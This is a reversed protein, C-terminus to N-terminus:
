PFVITSEQNIDVTREGFTASSVSTAGFQLSTVYTERLIRVPIKANTNTSGSSDTAVASDTATVYRTVTSRSGTDTAVASDTATKVIAGVGVTVGATDTATFTDVPVPATQEGGVTTTPDDSQPPRTATWSGTAGIGVVGPNLIDGSLAGGTYLGSNAARWTDTTSDYAVDLWYTRGADWTGSAGLTFIEGLNTWAIGDTSVAINAAWKPVGYTEWIMYYIGRVKFVRDVGGDYRGGTSNPQFIIDSGYRTWPGTASPATAHMVGWRSTSYGGASTGGLPLVTYWAKWRKNSDPEDPDYIVDGGYAVSDLYGYDNSHSSQYITNGSNAKTWTGTLVSLASAGSPAPATAVGWSYDEKVNAPGRDGDFFMTFQSGDFYVSFTQLVRGDMYTGDTPHWTGADWKLIQATTSVKTVTGSSDMKFLGPTDNGPGSISVGAATNAGLYIGWADGNGDRYLTGDLNKIWRPNFIYRDDWAGSTGVTLDTHPSHSIAGASGGDLSLFIGNAGYTQGAYSAASNGYYAFLTATASSGPTTPMVVWFVASTSSTYRDRWFTLTTGDALAFRLDAFDTKMDADYTLDVRVPYNSLASRHGTVTVPVRRTWAPYAWPNSTGYAYALLGASADTAAVSDSATKAVVSVSVSASDSATASDSASKATLADSAAFNDGRWTRTDSGAYISFAYLGAKGAATISSDTVSVKLTGDIYAKIATGIMELRLRYATSSSPSWAASGLSTYTGAVIKYIYVTTRDVYAIYGTAAATNVRGMVGVGSTGLSVDVSTSSVDMEVTYDASGPSPSCYYGCDKGTVTQYVKGAGDSQFSGDSLDASGHHTWTGGGSLSDGAIDGSVLSFDDTAFAM